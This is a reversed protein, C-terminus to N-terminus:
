LRSTFVDADKNIEIGYWFGSSRMEARGGNETENWMQLLKNIELDTLPYEESEPDRYKAFYRRFSAVVDSRHCNGKALLRAKAFEDFEDKLEMRRDFEDRTARKEGSALRGIEYFGGWILSVGALQFSILGDGETLQLLVFQTWFGIAVFVVGLFVSFPLPPAAFLGDNRDKLWKENEKDYFLNGLPTILPNSRSGSLFWLAGSWTLSPLIDDMSIPNILRKKMQKQKEKAVNARQRASSRSGISILGISKDSDSLEDPFNRDFARAAAPTFMSVALISTALAERRGMLKSPMKKGKEKDVEDYEVSKQSTLSLQFQPTRNALYFVRHTQFAASTALFTGFLLSRLSLLSPCKKM